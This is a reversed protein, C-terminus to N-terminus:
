GVFDRAQLDPPAFATDPGAPLKEPSADAMNSHISVSGSSPLLLGAMLRMLTTKGAGDPGVLGTVVGRPIAASLSALAPQKAGPFRKVLGELQVMASAM